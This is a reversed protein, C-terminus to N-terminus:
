GLDHTQGVQGCKATVDLKEHCSTCTSIVDAFYMARDAQAATAGQKAISRVRRALADVEPTVSQQGALADLGLPDDKLSEIGQKWAETSPTTLGEWLRAVPSGERASRPGCDRDGPDLASGVAVRIMRSSGSLM